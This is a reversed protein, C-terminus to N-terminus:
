FCSMIHDMNAHLEDLKESDLYLSFSLVNVQEDFCEALDYWSDYTSILEDNLLEAIRILLDCAFDHEGISLLNPIDETLFDYLEDEMLDLDHCEHLKFDPGEGKKFVTDLKATYYKKDITNDSFRKIFKDKLDPNTRFEKKLFDKLDDNSVLNFIEDFDPKDVYEELHNKIYYTLAAEHKCPYRSPCNCSPYSPSQFEMYTEVRCDEVEAIIQVGDNSKISVKEALEIAEDLDESKYLKEWAKM